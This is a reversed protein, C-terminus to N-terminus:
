YCLAKFGLHDCVKDKYLMRILRNYIRSTIERPRNVKADKIYRSGTALDNGKRIADILQSFYKMDTALDCDIFVYIDGDM